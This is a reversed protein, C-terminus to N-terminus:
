FEIIHPVFRASNSTILGDERIGMGVSYGDVCWSGIVPYHGNFSPMDYLEQYVCNAEDYEGDTKILTSGDVVIEINAGERALIPKKVYSSPANDKNYTTKLLYPSDPAVINLIPLIAKNSWIMKWVPEIWNTGTLGQSLIHNSIMEQSLWEWPYLKYLNHIVNNEMDVFSQKNIDWGIDEMIIPITKIGAAEIIDRMYSVTMTDEAYDDNIHACHVPNGNLSSKIEEWRSVMKEHISNFQDNHPFYEEKWYWQIVSAELLSTPTDCNYEFLKPPNIGDYGFDFRGYNLAPPEKDWSQSILNSFEQNIGFLEFLNNDVVFQGAEVFIEHVAETAKEIEEIEKKKFSYYETESWYQKGEITHFILGNEEVKQQWDKRALIISKRQM